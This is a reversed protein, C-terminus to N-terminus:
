AMFDLFYSDFRAAILDNFSISCERILNHMLNQTWRICGNVGFQNTANLTIAPFTTRLWTNLLYDGARSVQVSWDQGFNAIGNTKSLLMPIQTFWTSKRTLRVFYATADMGGYLYRELEDYTALDIFGASINSSPIAM